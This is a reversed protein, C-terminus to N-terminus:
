YPDPGDSSEGNGCSFEWVGEKESKYLHFYSQTKFVSHALLGSDVGEPLPLRRRDPNGSRAGFGDCLAEELASAEAPSLRSSDYPEDQHPLKDWLKRDHLRPQIQSLTVRRPPEDEGDVSSPSAELAQIGWKARTESLWKERAENQERWIRELED